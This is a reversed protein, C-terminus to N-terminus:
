YDAPLAFLNTLVIANALIAKSWNKVYTMMNNIILHIM